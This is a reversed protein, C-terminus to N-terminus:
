LILFDELKKRGVLTFKSSKKQKNNNPLKKIDIGATNCIKRWENESIKPTNTKIKSFNNVLIEERSLYKGLIYGDSILVKESDYIIEGIPLIRCYQEIYIAQSFQIDVLIERSAKMACAFALADIPNYQYFSGVEGIVFPKRSALLFLETDGIQQQIFLDYPLLKTKKTWFEVLQSKAILFNNEGNTTVLSWNDGCDLEDIYHSNDPFLFDNTIEWASM